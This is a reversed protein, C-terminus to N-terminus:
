RHNPRESKRPRSTPKQEPTRNRYLWLGLGTVVLIASLLQGMTLWGFAIFGLQPDPQRTFEVLFRFLGYFNLFMSATQGDDPTGARRLAWLVLLLIPGELVAEYLQSPHRPM